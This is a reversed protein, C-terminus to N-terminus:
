FLSLYAATIADGWLSDRICMKVASCGTINMNTAGVLGGVCGGGWGPNNARLDRIIYGSVSCNTFSAGNKGAGAFGVLGGMAYWHTGAADNIVENGQDSYM